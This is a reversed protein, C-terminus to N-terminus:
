RDKILDIWNNFHVMWFIYSSSSVWKVYLRLSPIDPGFIDNKNKVQLYGVIGGDSSSEISILSYGNGIKSPVSSSSGSSDSVGLEDCKVSVLVLLVYLLFSSLYFCSPNSVISPSM